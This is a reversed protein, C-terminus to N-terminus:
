ARRPMRFPLMLQTVPHIFRDLSLSEHYAECAAGDLSMRVHNRTYFPADELTSLLQPPSDSRVDRSMGWIGNKLRHVPPVDFESVVGGAFRRGFCFQSGDRRTVDYLVDAGTPKATRAWTWDRFGEELPETGWNMDHYAAGSWTLNPNEFKVEVRGHPAVAQWFHRGAEDLGVPADYITDPLFRVTGVLSRPIPMCRENIAITLGVDDWRMSSPGVRFREADREVHGKGRETMAWRKTGGYLAVNIACHNEPDGRGAKRARRYYPSFVSGVFGIITLGSRGDDSVADLYWWRYGDQAVPANFHPRAV